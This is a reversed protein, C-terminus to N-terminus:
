KNIPPSSRKQLHASVTKSSPDATGRALGSAIINTNRSRWSSKVRAKDNILLSLDISCANVFVILLQLDKRTANTCVTNLGDSLKNVRGDSFSTIRTIRRPVKNPPFSM